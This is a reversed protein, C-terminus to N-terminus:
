KPWIRAGAIEIAEIADAPGSVIPASQNKLDIEFSAQENKTRILVDGVRLSKGRCFLVREPRKAANFRILCLDGDFRVGTGGDVLPSSQGAPAEIDKALFLDRRGDTLHIEIGVDGDACPKGENDQLQL